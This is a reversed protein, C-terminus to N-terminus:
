IFLILMIKGAIPLAWFYQKDADHQLGYNIGVDLKFDKFVEIQIAANIFNTIQHAKFDYTYYTEAIGEISKVISHSLTLTQLFETHMLQREKDKLRDIELQFGLDWGGPLKYSMPIIIGAEFLSDDEYRSVPFKIYPLITLAFNGKNNGILNYKVRFMLDGHGDNGEQIGSESDKKIQVGYSQYCMQIDTNGTIGIKLNMQNILVTNTQTKESKENILRVLDTELQLHGADVTCTSETVDPRDTEM